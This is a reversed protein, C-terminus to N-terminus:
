IPIKVKYLRQNMLKTAVMNGFKQLMGCWDEFLM